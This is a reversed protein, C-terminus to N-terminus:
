APSRCSLQWHCRSGRPSSLHRFTSGSSSPCRYSPRISGNPKFPEDLDRDERDRRSFAARVRVNGSSHSRDPDEPVLWGSLSASLRLNERATGVRPGGDLGSLARPDSPVEETIDDAGVLVELSTAGCEFGEAVTRNRRLPRVGVVRPLNRHEIGIRGHPDHSRGALKRRDRNARPTRTSPIRGDGLERNPGLLVSVTPHVALKHAVVGPDSVKVNGFLVTPVSVATRQHAREQAVISVAAHAGADQERTGGAGM